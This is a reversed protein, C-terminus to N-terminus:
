ARATTHAGWPVELEITRTEVVPPADPVDLEAVPTAPLALGESLYGEM